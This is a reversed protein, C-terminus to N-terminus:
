GGGRVCQTRATAALLPAIWGGARRQARLTGLCVTQDGGPAQLYTKMDRDGLVATYVATARFGVKKPYFFSGNQVM